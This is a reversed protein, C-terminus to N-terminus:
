KEHIIKTFWTLAYDAKKYELESLTRNHKLVNRVDSIFEFNTDLESKSKFYDEFIPWFERSIIKKYDFFTMFGFPIIEERKENPNNKLHEDIRDETRKKLDICQEINDWYNPYQESIKNHLFDRLSIELDDIRREIENQKESIEMQQKEDRDLNTKNDRVKESIDEIKIYNIFDEQEQIFMLAVYEPSVDTSEFRCYGSHKMRNIFSQDGDVEDAISLYYPIITSVLHNYDQISKLFDYLKRRYETLDSAKEPINNEKIWLAYLLNTFREISKTINANFERVNNFKTPTVNQPLKKSKYLGYFMCIIVPDIQRQFAKLYSERNFKDAENQEFPPDDKKTANTLDVLDEPLDLTKIIFDPM